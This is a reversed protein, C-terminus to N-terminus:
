RFLNRCSAALPLGTTPQFLTCPMSVTDTECAQVNGTVQTQRSCDLTTSAGAKCEAVGQQEEAPALQGVQVACHANARCFTDVVQHCLDPVDTGGDKASSCGVVLGALLVLVHRANM